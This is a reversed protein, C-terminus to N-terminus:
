AHPCVKISSPGAQLAKGFQELAVAWREASIKIALLNHQAAAAVLADTDASVTGLDGPVAGNIGLLAACRKSFGRKRVVANLPGVSAAFARAAPAVPSAARGCAALTAVSTVHKFCSAVEVTAAAFPIITECARRETALLPTSGGM